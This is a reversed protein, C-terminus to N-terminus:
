LIRRRWGNIDPPDLSAPLRDPRYETACDMTEWAMAAGLCDDDHCGGAAEARGSPTTIFSKLEEIVHICPIEIDYNRIAAALGEIVSNRDQKDMLRFGYQEVTEKTRHSVPRRKYLPVGANKLLRLIDTAMNMELVVICKGYLFSLRAAHGAVVDGDGYFPAKLRAVLKAPRWANLKQDQYGRRWVTVSHRDPDAGITQSEDTAPDISVLYRLGEQPHEYIQIDGSGDNALRFHVHDGHQSYLSGNECQANKARAAMENLIAMDFRPAGSASWCSIEDEPYYYDFIRPDGNCVNKITERRWAIQEMDWGYKKIGDRERQDLTSQIMKREVDSVLRERRHELFEWWAAFVKVWQEEPCIGQEHMAIFEDLTVAECWTKYHWGMAGEPTSEAIVVTGDGSLSPLVATMTKKDNKTQSKPWKSVESFHGAQRTGGVGADPNEATDITWSTGNTWELVNNATPILKVKWPFSDTTSYEKLKDMLESSHQKKDSITIGEIPHNMGHHYVIHSAFSSCGTQRPKVAILRIKVGMAKLTEYAESMRLQLINPIPQEKINEKNRITCYCSFHVAPSRVALLEIDQPTKGALTERFADILPDVTM